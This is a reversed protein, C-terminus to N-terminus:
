RNLGLLEREKTTLKSLAKRRAAAEKAEEAKQRERRADHRQHRKWWLQLELSKKTVDHNNCWDCLRATNENLTGGYEGGYYSPEDHDFPKGDIEKLLEEVRAAEVEHETHNLYESNCPM